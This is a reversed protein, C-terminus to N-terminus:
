LELGMDAEGGEPRALADGLQGAAVGQEYGQRSQGDCRKM